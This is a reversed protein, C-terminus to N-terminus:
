KKEKVITVTANGEGAMIMVSLKDKEASLMGGTGYTTMSSIKFSKNKLETQYEKLATEPVNEFVLMWSNGEDMQQTTVSLIKGYRFEPVENPIEDSWSNESVDTTFTGEDTKITIKDKDIAVDADNGISKEIIKESVKESAKKCSNFAFILSMVLLLQLIPKISIPILNKM